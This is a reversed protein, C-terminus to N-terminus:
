LILSSTNGPLFKVKIFPSKATLSSALKPDHGPANDLLSLAKVDMKNRNVQKELSTSFVRSTQEYFLQIPEWVNCNSSWSVGLEHRIIQKKFVSPNVLQHMLMSKVKFDGSANAGLFM